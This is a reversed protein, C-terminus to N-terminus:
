LYLRILNTLKNNNNIQKFRIRISSPDLPFTTGKVNLFIM